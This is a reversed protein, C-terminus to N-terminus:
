NRTLKDAVSKAHVKPFTDAQTYVLAKAEVEKLKDIDTHADLEAITDSEKKVLAKAEVCTLADAISKVM